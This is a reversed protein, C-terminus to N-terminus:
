KKFGSISSPFFLVRGQLAEGSIISPSSYSDPNNPYDKVALRIPRYSVPSLGIVQKLTLNPAKVLIISNYDISCYRCILVTQHNIQTTYISWLGRWHWSFIVGQTLIYVATVAALLQLLDKILSKKFNAALKEQEAVLLAYDTDLMNLDQINASRLFRRSNLITTLIQWRGSERIRM